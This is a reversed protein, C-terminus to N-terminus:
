GEEEGDAEGGKDDVAGGVGGGGGGEAGPAMGGADHEERFRLLKKKTSSRSFSTVPDRRRLSAANFLICTLMDVHESATRNRRTSFVHALVKFAREGGAASSPL